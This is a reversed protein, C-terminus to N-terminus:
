TGDDVVEVGRFFVETFASIFLADIFLGAITNTHVLLDLYPMVHHFSAEILHPVYM